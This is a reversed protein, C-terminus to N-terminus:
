DDKDESNNESNHKSKYLLVSAGLCQRVLNLGAPDERWNAFFRNVDRVFYKRFRRRSRVQRTADLDLVTLRASGDDSRYAPLYLFNSVKMDGHVLQHRRMVTFLQRFCLLIQPWPVQRASRDKLLTLVDDGESWETVFYAVRRLPGWRQELLLVPRPTDVGVATLLHANYWCHWARSPRFLRRLVYWFNRLNYRKVVCQKGDLELAVVTTSDGDKLMRANAMLADPQRIFSQLAPGDDSRDFVAVRDFRQQRVRAPSSVYLDRLLPRLAKQGDRMAIRDAKEAVGQWFASQQQLATRLSLGTYAKVFRYLDTRTLGIDASSYLLGAIDKIVWRQALRDSVIARHLDIVALSPPATQDVSGGPACRLLFHCLYFDRHCVGHRHMGAAIRALENILQRKFVFSPRQESWTACFTELSIAPELAETILFSHRRAPNLGREGYAAITMTPIGIDGLRRIAEWETRASLIPRRLTLLNKFIEQWGVGHHIKAFYAQSGFEFRLTRRGPAQRYVEGQLRDAELFPDSGQWATAFRNQLNLTEPM